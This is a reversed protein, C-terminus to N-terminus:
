KNEAHKAITLRQMLTNAGMRLRNKRLLRKLRVNTRQSAAESCPSAELRQAIEALVGFSHFEDRSGADAQSIVSWGHRGLPKTWLPPAPQKIEIDHASMAVYTQFQRLVDSIQDATLEYQRLTALLGDRAESFLKRQDLGVPDLTDPDPPAPPPASTRENVHEVDPIIDEEEDEEEIEEHGICVDHGKASLFGSSEALDEILNLRQDEAEALGDASPMIQGLVRRLEEHGKSTLVHALQFIGHTAARTRQAIVRACTQYM